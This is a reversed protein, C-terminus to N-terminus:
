NHMLIKRGSGHISWFKWFSLSHSIAKQETPWSPFKEVNQFRNDFLNDHVSIVANSSILAFSNLIKHTSNASSSQQINESANCICQSKMVSFEHGICVVVIENCLLEIVADITVWIESSQLVFGILIKTTAEKTQRNLRNEMLINHLFESLFFVQLIKIVWHFNINKNYIKDNNRQKKWSDLTLWCQTM